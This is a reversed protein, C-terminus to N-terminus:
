KKLANLADKAKRQAEEMLVLRAKEEEVFRELLRSVLESMGYGRKAGYLAAEDRLWAPMTISVRERNPLFENTDNKQAPTKNQTM